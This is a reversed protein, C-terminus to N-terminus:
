EALDGFASQGSQGVPLAWDLVRELWRPPRYGSM